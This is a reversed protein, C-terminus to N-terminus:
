PQAPARRPILKRVEDPPIAQVDDVVVVEDIESPPGDEKFEAKFTGPPPGLVISRPEWNQSRGFARWDELLSAQARTWTETTSGWCIAVSDCKKMMERDFNKRQVEDDDRAPFVAEVNHQRLAKKLGRALAADKADHLVFVKSSSTVAPVNDLEEVPPALKPKWQDLCRVMSDRFNGFDDGFVKDTACEAGFRALVEQPDRTLTGGGSRGDRQFVKPAWIIRRFPSKAAADRAGRVDTKAASRALQLKVIEDLGEPKWGASEGILHVAVEAKALEADIFSLASGDAPIDASRSPVVNYGKKTLEAVVRIYDDFMDSAPKAVYITRGIPAPPLSEGPTLRESAVRFRAFLDYFPSWFNDLPKGRDFFELESRVQSESKQYFKFGVQHEIGSPRSEKQVPNKEVLIIREEIPENARRRCEKFYELEQQCYASAMWNPSLVILLLSSKRLAEELRAPFPEGNSIQQTDRWFVPRLPGSIRFQYVLQDQLFEVFGKAGSIDPPPENDDRAYSIFIQASNDEPM